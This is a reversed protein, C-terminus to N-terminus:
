CFPRRPSDCPTTVGERVGARLMLYAKYRPTVSPSRLRAGREGLSRCKRALSTTNPFPPRPIQTRQRHQARIERMSTAQRGVQTSRRGQRQLLLGRLTLVLVVLPAALATILAM